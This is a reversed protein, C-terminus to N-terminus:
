KEVNLSLTKYTNISWKELKFLKKLIMVKQNRCALFNHFQQIQKDQILPQILSFGFSLLKRGLSAGAFWFCIRNWNGLIGFAM